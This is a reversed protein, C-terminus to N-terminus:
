AGTPDDRRPLDDRVPLSLGRIGFTRRRNFPIDSNKDRRPRAVSGAAVPEPEPLPAAVPEPLPAASGLQEISKVDILRMGNVKTSRVKNSKILTYCTTIGFGGLQCARRPRVWFPKQTEVTKDLTFEPEFAAADSRPL